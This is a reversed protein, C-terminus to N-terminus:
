KGVRKLREYDDKSILHAMTIFDNESDFYTMVRYVTGIVKDNKVVPEAQFKKIQHCNVYYSYKKHDFPTYDTVKVFFLDKHEM